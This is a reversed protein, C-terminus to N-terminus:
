PHRSQLGRLVAARPAKGATSVLGRALALPKFPETALQNAGAGCAVPAAWKEGSVLRPTYRCKGALQSTVGRNLPAALNLKKRLPIM